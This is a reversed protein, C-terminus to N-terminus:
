DGLLEQIQAQTKVPDTFLLGNIGLEQAAEINAMFDDVFIAEQPNVDLRNLILQYIEPDPKALGVEASFISQDFIRDMDMKKQLMLRAGSWANSLLGTLYRNRLKWIFECLQLDVRDGQWFRNQFDILGEETLHYHERIFHWHENEDIRGLGALKASKSEFVQSYLENLDVGLDKSLSQRFSQDETRVIVGGMDWIVAKIM